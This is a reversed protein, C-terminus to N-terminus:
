LQRIFSDHGEAKLRLQYEIAEDQERFPGVLIRYWEPENNDLAVPHGKRKM